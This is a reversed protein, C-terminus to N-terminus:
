GTGFSIENIQTEYGDEKLGETNYQKFNDIHIKKITRFSTTITSHM